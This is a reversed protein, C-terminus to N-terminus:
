DNWSIEKKEQGPNQPHLDSYVATIGLKEGAGPNKNVMELIRITLIREKATVTKGGRKDTIALTYESAALFYVASDAFLAM